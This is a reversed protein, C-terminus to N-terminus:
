DRYDDNKKKWPIKDGVIVRERSIRIQVATERITIKPRERNPGEGILYGLVKISVKTEFMREEESLNTTNKNYSFDQQIFAEYQNGEHKFLFSNLGGTKTIFPQVLDNMQQQYETRITISYMVTVYTPVPITIEQYVIKKNNGRGTGDVTKLERSKDANAFNRTKEQQIRKMITLSSGGKYDGQEILNAQVSGKFTPDKTMSDRNITILPLKLKGVKDRLEKNNKIQFARETGLWLVPVKKEGRNTNTSLDLTQDVWKFIAGDITEISSPEFTKIKDPM